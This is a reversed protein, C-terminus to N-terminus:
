IGIRQKPFTGTKKDLGFDALFYPLFNPLKSHDAPSSGIGQGNEPFEQNQLFQNMTYKNATPVNKIINDIQAIFSTVFLAFGSELKDGTNIPIATITYPIVNETLVPYVILGALSRPGLINTYRIPKGSTKLSTISKPIILFPSELVLPTESLTASM